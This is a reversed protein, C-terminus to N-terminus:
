WRGQARLAISLRHARGDRDSPDLSPWAADRLAKLAKRLDKRLHRPLDDALLAASTVFVPHVGPSALEDCLLAFAAPDGARILREAAAARLEPDPSGLLPALAAEARLGDHDWRVLTRAAHRRVAPDAAGLLGTVAETLRSLPVTVPGGEWDALDGVLTAAALRVESDAHGVLPLVADLTAAALANAGVADLVDMALQVVLPEPHRLLALVDPGCAPTAIDQYVELVALLLGPHLRDRAAIMGRLVSEAWAQEDARWPHVDLLAALARRAALPDGTRAVELLWGTAAGEFEGVFKEWADTGAAPLLSIEWVM